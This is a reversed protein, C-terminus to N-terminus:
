LLGHERLWPVVADLASDPVRTGDHGPISMMDHTFSNLANERAYAERLADTLSTIWEQGVRQDAYGTQIFLPRPPFREILSLLSNQGIIENYDMGAFESMRPWHIVPQHAVAASVDPNGVMAHLIAFGHRSSGMVVVRGPRTYGQALADEIVAGIRAQMMAFGDLGQEAREALLQLDDYHEGHMLLIGAGAATLRDLWQSMVNPKERLSAPDAVVNKAQTPILCLTAEGDFNPEPNLNCLIDETEVHLTYPQWAERVYQRSEGDSM